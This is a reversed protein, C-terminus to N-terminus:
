KQVATVRWICAGKDDVLLLSGDKAVALQSPTGWVYVHGNRVTSFGTMFDEYGGVPKGDKFHVRVVKYGDLTDYPGSGHIAIFADGRYDAPFQAGTYFVLGLPATHAGLLVDPTKTKAVLDPRKAGFVPDPNPGNYAYPWGFFDGQRAQALFDSPVRAGLTDRENVTVWLNDTGPYFALGEVNRLGTAFPTMGGDAGIREISADPLPAESLDDRAGIALYLQDGSDLVVDRTAHWGIPRLDPASTLRKFESIPVSDRGQYPARWVANTDGITIQGGQLAIGHPMKFGAAFERSQDAKGDRDTDRLRMIIGPGEEVVFVDGDPAVALARPHKLGSAFLSVAFGPPVQPMANAPREVFDPDFDAPKTSNPPPLDKPLLVFHDGPAAHSCIASALWLAAFGAISAATRCIAM